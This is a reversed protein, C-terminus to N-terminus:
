LQPEVSTLQTNFGTSRHKTVTPEIVFTVRTPKLCIRYFWHRYPAIFLITALSNCFPIWGIFMLLITGIHGTNLNLLATLVVASM